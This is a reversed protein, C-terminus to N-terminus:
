PGTCSASIGPLTSLLTAPLSGRSAPTAQLADIKEDRAVFAPSVYIHKEPTRVVVTGGDRVARGVLIRGDKMTIRRPKVEAAALPLAVATALVAWRACRRSRHASGIM